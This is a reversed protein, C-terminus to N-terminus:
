AHTEPQVRRHHHHHIERHHHVIAAANDHRDAPVICDRYDAASDLHLQVSACDIVADDDCGNTSRAIGALGLRDGLGVSQHLFVVIMEYTV